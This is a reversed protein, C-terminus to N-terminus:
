VQLCSTMLGMRQQRRDTLCERLTMATMCPSDSTMWEMHLHATHVTKAASDVLIRKTYALAPRSIDYITADKSTERSATCCHADTVHFTIYTADTTHRLM